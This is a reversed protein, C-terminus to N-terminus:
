RSVQQIAVAVVRYFVNVSPAAMFGFGVCYSVLTSLRSWRRGENLTRFRSVLVAGETAVGQQIIARDVLGLTSGAVTAYDIATAFRKVEAPCRLQYIIAGCALFCLGFYIALLRWSVYTQNNQNGFIYESLQLAPLVKSNFIVMYGILPIFVTTKTAPHNGIARLNSWLPWGIAMLLPGINTRAALAPQTFWPARHREDL